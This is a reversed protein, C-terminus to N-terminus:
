GNIGRNRGSTLSITQTLSDLTSEFKTLKQSMNAVDNLVNNSAINDTKVQLFNLLTNFASYLALILFIFATAMYNPCNNIAIAIISFTGLVYILTSPQYLNTGITNCLNIFKNNM